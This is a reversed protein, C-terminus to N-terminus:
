TNNVSKWANRIKVLTLEAQNFDFNNLQKELQIVLNRPIHSGLNSLLTTLMDEDFMEHNKICMALNVLHTEVMLHDPHTCPKILRDEGSVNKHIQEIVAALCVIFEPLSNLKEQAKIETELKMACATLENAGLTSATGRIRHLASLAKDFLQEQLLNELQQSFTTHETAFRQLLKNLLKENGQLRSL